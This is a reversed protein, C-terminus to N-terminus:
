DKQMTSRLCAATILDWPADEVEAEAQLEDPEPIGLGTELPTVTFLLGWLVPHTNRAQLSLFSDIM